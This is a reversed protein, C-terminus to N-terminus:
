PLRFHIKPWRLALLARVANAQSMPGPLGLEDAKDEIEWPWWFKASPDGSLSNSRGVPHATTPWTTLTAATVPHAATIADAHALWDTANSIVDSVFGRLWLMEVRGLGNVDGAGFQVAYPGRGIFESTASLAFQSAGPLHPIWDAANAHWLQTIRFQLRSRDARPERSNATRASPLQAVRCQARIFEPRADDGQEQLWDAYVLRATDDDPDALIRALIDAGDTV